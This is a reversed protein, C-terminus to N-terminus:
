FLMVVGDVDRLRAYLEIVAEATPLEPEITVCVHRGNATRRTSFAPELDEPLGCRVTSVVRGVFNDSTHGVVKFMYPGPFVHTAELLEVSPAYDM